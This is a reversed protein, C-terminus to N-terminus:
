VEKSTAGSTRPRRSARFLSTAPQTQVGTSRPTALLGPLKDSNKALLLPTQTSNANTDYKRLHILSYASPETEALSPRRNEKGLSQGSADRSMPQSTYGGNGSLEPHGPVYTEGRLINPSSLSLFDSPHDGEHFSSPMSESYNLDASREFRLPSSATRPRREYPVTGPMRPYINAAPDLTITDTHSPLEFPPDHESIPTQPYPPMLLIETPSTVPSPPQRVVEIPFRHLAEMASLQPPSGFSSISEHSSPPRGLGHISDRNSGSVALAYSPRGSVMRTKENTTQSTSRRDVIRGEGRAPPPSNKSIHALALEASSKGSM